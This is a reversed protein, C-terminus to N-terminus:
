QIPQKRICIFINCNSSNPNPNSNPNSNLNSNSNSNPTSNPTPAACYHNTSM